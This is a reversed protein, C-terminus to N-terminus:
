ARQARARRLGLVGLGLALMLYSAPEPVSPALEYHISGNWVRSAYTDGTFDPNGKGVGLALSLDANGYSGDGNTYIMFTPGFNSLTVYVGHLSAAALVFDGLDVITANGRGASTVSVSDRLTWGLANKDFGVYTGPRTYVSIQNGTSGTNDLHVDFGTVLLKSSGVQLDFMNGAYANGGAYTTAIVAASASAGAAALLMAFAATRLTNM